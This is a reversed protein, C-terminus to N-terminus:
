SEHFYKFAIEELQGSLLSGDEAKLEFEQQELDGFSTAGDLALLTSFYIDTFAADLVDKLAACQSSSLNMKKIAAEVLTEPESNDQLYLELSRTKEEFVGKVFEEPTM